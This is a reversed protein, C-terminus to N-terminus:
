AHTRSAPLHKLSPMVDRTFLEMSRMAHEPALNGFSFVLGLYNITTEQVSERLISLVTKPSGAVLRMVSDKAKPDLRPLLPPRGHKTTLHNIHALWVAFADMGLTQAETDTDAVVILHSKGLKPATVHANHRGPDDRHKVWLERYQAYLARTEPHSTNLVTHYGHKATFTISNSDSSPFWLGPYPKQVLRNHLEVDRYQYYKGTFTLNDTRCATFFIDLIERYRQRSDEVDAIGFISAEIPSVGRGVGLELRGGSMQDLMCMELYFRYPNYWPLCWTLAGLRIRTTRQAAAAILLSPSANISLPTGQHEALQWAYFGAKDAAEALRLKHEFIDAPPRGTAEVWDFMGIELPSEPFGGASM